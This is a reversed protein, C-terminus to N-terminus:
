KSWERQLTMALEELNRPCTQGHQVANKLLKWINELLNLDLSNALWDLKEILCLKRWEEPARSCHVLAGDEMLIDSLVKGMFQLLQSDYILEIFNIAKRQNRLM